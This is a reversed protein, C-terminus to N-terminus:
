GGGKEILFFPQKSKHMLESEYTGELPLSGNNNDADM